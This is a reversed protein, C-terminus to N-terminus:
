KLISAIQENLFLKRLWFRLDSVRMKQIGARVVEMGKAQDM